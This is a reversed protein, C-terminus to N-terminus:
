CTSCFILINRIILIHSTPVILETTNDTGQCPPHFFTRSIDKRRFVLLQNLDDTMLMIFALQIYLTKIMIHAKYSQIEYIVLRDVDEFILEKNSQQSTRYYPLYTRNM